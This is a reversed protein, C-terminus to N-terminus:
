IFIPSLMKKNEFLISDIKQIDTEFGWIPCIPYIGNQLGIM